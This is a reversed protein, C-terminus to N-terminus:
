GQVGLALLTFTERERLSNVVPRIFIKVTLFFLCVFLCVITCALGQVTAIHLCWHIDGDRNWLFSIQVHVEPKQKCVVAGLKYLQFAQLITKENSFIHSLVLAIPLSYTHGSKGREREM